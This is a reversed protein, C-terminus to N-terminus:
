SFESWTVPNDYAYHIARNVISYEPQSFRRERVGAFTPRLQRNSTQVMEIAVNHEKLGPPVSPHNLGVVGGELLPGFFSLGNDAGEHDAEKGVVHSHSPQTRYRDEALSIIYSSESQDTYVRVAVRDALLEQYKPNSAKATELAFNVKRILVNTPKNACSFM